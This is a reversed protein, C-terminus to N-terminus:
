TAHRAVRGPVETCPRHYHSTVPPSRDRGNTHHQFTFVQCAPNATQLTTTGHYLTSPGCASGVVVYVWVCVCVWLVTLPILQFTGAATIFPLHVPPWCLFLFLFHSLVFLVHSLWLLHLLTVSKHVNPSVCQTHTHHTHSLSVPTRHRITLHISFWFASCTEETHTRTHVYTLASYCRIASQGVWDQWWRMWLECWYVCGGVCVCARVDILPWFALQSM